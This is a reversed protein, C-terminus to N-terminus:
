ISALLFSALPLFLYGMRLTPFILLPISKPVTVLSINNLINLLYSFHTLIGGCNQIKRFVCFTQFWSRSSQLQLESYKLGLPWFFFPLFVLSVCFSLPGTGSFGGTFYVIWFTQIEAIASLKLYMFYIGKIMWSSM